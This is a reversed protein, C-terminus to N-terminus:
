NGARSASHEIRKLIECCCAVKPIAKLLLIESDDLLDLVLDKDTVCRCRLLMEGAFSDDRVRVKQGNM